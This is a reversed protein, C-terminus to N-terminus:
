KPTPVVLVSVSLVQGNTAEAVPVTLAGDTGEAKQLQAATLVVVGVEDQGSVDKDVLTIRLTSGPGLTVSRLTAAGPAWVPGLSDPVEAIPAVVPASDSDTRFEMSGAVDPLVLTAATSKVAAALNGTPDLRDVVTGLLNSAGPEVRDPGDWAGGRSTAPALQANTLTVDVPHPCGLLCALLM